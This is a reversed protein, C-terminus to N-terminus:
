FTSVAVIETGIYAFTAQTLVAWFGLFQGKVGRIGDFQTFPGPHKWYRFGIRDHNPGGSFADLYSHHTSDVNIHSAALTLFLELFSSDSSLLSKSPVICQADFISRWIWYWCKRLYLNQRETLVQTFAIFWGPLDNKILHFREGAGLLNIAIVLTMCVVIWVSSNIEKNWFHILVSAASLEAPLTVIWNFRVSSDFDATLLLQMFLYWVLLELGHCIFLCTGRFAWSIQYPRRTYTLVCDDRRVVGLFRSTLWSRVSTWLHLVMVSYCISGVVLYGLLLGLRGSWNLISISFLNSPVLPVVM